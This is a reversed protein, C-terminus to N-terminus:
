RRVLFNGGIALCEGPEFYQLGQLSPGVQLFARLGLSGFLHDRRCLFRWDALGLAELPELLDRPALPVKM